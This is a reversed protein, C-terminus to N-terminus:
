HSHSLVENWFLKLSTLVSNYPSPELLSRPWQRALEFISRSHQNTMLWTDAIVLTTSQTNKSSTAIYVLQRNFAKIWSIHTLWCHLFEENWKSFFLLIYTHLSMNIDSYRCLNRCYVNLKILIINLNWIADKINRTCHKEFM